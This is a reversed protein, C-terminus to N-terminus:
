HNRLYSDDSMWSRKYGKVYPMYRDAMFDAFTPVARLIAKEAAPDFGLAIQNRLKDAQKRAQALTIDREDALRFQHTKGREDLYRMYWTKGGSARVELLLGKCDTDFFDDKKKDQTCTINKVFQPTLLAKTM